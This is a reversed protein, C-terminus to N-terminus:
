KPVLVCEVGDFGFDDQPNLILKEKECKPFKKIYRELRLAASVDEVQWVAEVRVPKHSKTYKACKKGGLLHEKFRKQWDAATGTYLSNDECRLVYVYYM